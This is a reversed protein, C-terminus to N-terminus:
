PAAGALGSGTAVSSSATASGAAMVGGAGAEVALPPDVPLLLLARVGGGPRPELTVEGGHQRALARAITLGLGSGKPKTTMGPEFLRAAVAPELGPGQDLVQVSVQAGQMSCALDVARGSPTAELANQVLNVLTQTVKRPDCRVLAAAGSVRLAVGHERALGEHLAAVEHCVALLDARELTLPVLPRSFNLFGELIDQMRDVEQRLVGLREAGKGETLNQSLLAALGKVSAMPNKLEHALEGSLTLLERSRQAHEQRLAEAADLARWLMADFVGRLARGIGTALLTGLCLFAASLWLHLDSHGARAGGGLLELNWASVRGTVAVAAFAWPAALQLTFLVWAYWPREVMELSAVLALLLMLPLVPSELGGTVASATLQGVIAASLNARVAGPAMGQRRFRLAEFASGLMMLAAVGVLTARRWPTPEWLAVWLAVGAVLPAFSLRLGVMLGFLRAFETRHLEEYGRPPPAGSGQQRARHGARGSRDTDSVLPGYAM